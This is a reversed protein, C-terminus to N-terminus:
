AQPQMMGLQQMLTVADNMGWTEVIKGNAIRYVVVSDVDITKDTAPVGMFDGKHTGRTSYREIVRDGEAVLHETSSQADPFSAM